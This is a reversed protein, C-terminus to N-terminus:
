LSFAPPARGSFRPFQCLLVPVDLSPAVRAILALPVSPAIRPLVALGLQTGFPTVGGDDTSDPGSVRTVSHRRSTSSESFLVVDQHLDDSLSIAFFLLVLASGIATWEALPHHRNDGGHRVWHVRWAGLVGVAVLVWLINLFLEM